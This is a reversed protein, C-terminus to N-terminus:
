SPPEEDGARRPASLASWAVLGGACGLWTGLVASVAWAPAPDRTLLLLALAAPPVLSLALARGVGGLRGRAAGSV